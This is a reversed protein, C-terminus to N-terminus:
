SLAAAARAGDILAWRAHETDIIHGSIRIVGMLAYGCSQLLKRM